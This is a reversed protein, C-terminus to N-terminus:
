NGYTPITLSVLYRHNDKKISIKERGHYLTHLRQNILKNGLGSSEKPAIQNDQYLNSCNFSIHDESISIDIQIAADIKNNTVHKFANEIFPLLVMPAIEISDYSGNVNLSVFNPNTSRIRQLDIYKKIYKLEKELAIKDSKTEFLMFRMIDSLKNLYNSASQPDKSILVDINNLTNFLFHPDLQAKVLALEMEHNKKILDAKFQIDEYWGIFGRIVLGITGSVIGIVWITIFEQLFSTIGDQFMFSTDFFFLLLGCGIISSCLTIFLGSAVANLKKASEKLSSFVFFYFGYFSIFSPLVVFATVLKFLYNANPGSTFGNSAAALILLILGFYCAWFSLHLTKTISTKM